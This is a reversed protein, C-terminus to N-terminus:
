DEVKLKYEYYYSYVGSSQKIELKNGYHEILARKYNEQETNNRTHGICEIGVHISEGKDLLKIMENLHKEQFYNSGSVFISENM